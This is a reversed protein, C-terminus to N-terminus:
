NLNRISGVNQESRIYDIRDDGFSRVVESTDDESANDSVILRFSPYTQALVSAISEKLLGSRNFTPIGVTVKVTSMTGRQAPAARDRAEAEVDSVPTEPGGHWHRAGARSSM